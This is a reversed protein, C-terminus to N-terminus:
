ESKRLANNLLMPLCGLYVWAHSCFPSLRLFALSEERAHRRCIFNKSIKMWLATSLHVTLRWHKGNRKWSHLPEGCTEGSTKIILTNGWGGPFLILPQVPTHLSAFHFDRVVAKIEGPRQDFFLIKQGVAEETKWGLARVASENLIFHFYNKTYDEHSADLIDQHSLDSGAIIELQNAKVYEDDIPSGKVNMPESNKDARSMSYGSAINVPTGYAKSVALIDPNRKLETKVLDIKEIIKQDINMVLVHEREYGMKKNQIFQLQGRIVLTAVILFVSIM